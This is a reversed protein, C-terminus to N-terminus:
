VTQMRDFARYSIAEGIHAKSITENEQMDALTRALKLVRHVARGSLGFQEAAQDLLTEADPETTCFREVEHTNLHGNPKAQRALQRQRVAEVRKRVTASNEGKAAHRMEATSVRPVTVHMDIRDMLPGSLKSRYRQIQDPTCRCAGRQDGFYGCPCPNMAAVLQFRAPFSAQRAARSLTIQGSELPERLVELVKRDFEPLEDLFLVGHHSLSIEGPRPIAGGGVLAVASATHHPARFPRTQWEEPQLTKGTISLLAATEIAERETMTPLLGPLRSALMSKGTGPPGVFLLSHEGAAAIELARRAHEQGRVDELDACEMVCQGVAVTVLPSLPEKGNLHACVEKLTNAAYGTLGSVVAAEDRNVWPLFLSHSTESCKLAVPIV